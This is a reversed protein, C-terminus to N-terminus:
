TLTKELFQIKEYTIAIKDEGYGERIMKNVEANMSQIQNEIDRRSYRQGNIFIPQQIM